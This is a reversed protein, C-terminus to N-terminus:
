PRAGVSAGRVSRVLESGAETLSYFVVKRERRSTALGAKRLARLHHSVLNESREIVWALDCVCLEGGEHLAAALTLRTPDGVAAARRAADQAARPELRSSRLAEARPIDLCLLDCRAVSM